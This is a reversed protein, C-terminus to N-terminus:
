AHATEKRAHRRAALEARTDTCVQEVERACAMASVRRAQLERYEDSGDNCVAAAAHAATLAALYLRTAWDGTTLHLQALEPTTLQGLPLPAATM